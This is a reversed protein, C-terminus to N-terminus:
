LFLAISLILLIIGVVMSTIAFGKGNFKTQKNQIIGMSIAGLILSCLGMILGAIVSVFLWIPIAALSACMGALGLGEVKKGEQNLSSSNENVQTQNSENNFVDKAGNAYKIMFVNSKLESYTPGTPNNCKKYKIESVGVELINGSIIDGRKM